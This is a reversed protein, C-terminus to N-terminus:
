KNKYLSAIKKFDNERERDALISNKHKSLDTMQDLRISKEKTNQYFAARIKFGYEQVFKAALDIAHTLNKVKFVFLKNVQGNPTDAYFKLKDSIPEM